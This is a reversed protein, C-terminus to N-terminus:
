KQGEQFPLLKYRRKGKTKGYTQISERPCYNICRFCQECTDLWKPEGEMLIISKTPCITECYGCENCNEDTHFKKAMSPLYRTFGRSAAAMLLGKLGGTKAIHKTGGALLRQVFAEAKAEGARVQKRCEEEEPIRGVVYNNPMEISESDLLVYGKKELLKWGQIVASGIGGGNTAGLFVETGSAKPMKEMFNKVIRPMGFSYVPYCFGVIAHNLDLLLTKEEAINLLSVKLGEKQFMSQMVQAIRLSNGTGTFYYLIIQKKM